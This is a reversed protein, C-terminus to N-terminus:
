EGDERPVYENRDFWQSNFIGLLGILALMSIWATLPPVAPNSAQAIASASVEALQTNKPHEALGLLHMKITLLYLSGSMNPVASEWGFAFILSIVMARNVLLSIFLFLATYAFAGVTMAMMDRWFVLGFGAGTGLSAGILAIWLIIAVSVASALWRAILLLPRPVPRTLMYVITKQQVERNVVVGAFVAAVLALVRFLIQESMQVYVQVPTADKSMRVFVVGLIATVVGSMAWLFFKQPRLMDRMASTFLYSPNNM